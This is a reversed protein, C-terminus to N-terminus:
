GNKSQDFLITKEEKTLSDYGSKSIKDLIKDIVEQKHKKQANYEQDSMRQAPKGGKFAKLKPKPEVMKRIREIFAQSVSVINNKSHLKQVSWIGFIAGGIHAFHAVQDNDGLRLFDVLIFFLAIFIIRIRFIGFFYVTENPRYFAVAVFIAMISGSAGVVYNPIGQLAPFISYAAMQILGGLIGGLVYTHFLRSSNFYRLFMAGAFYLFLMNFLFHFLDFHAFISTFLGWPRLIFQQWKGHLTFIDQILHAAPNLGEVMFLKGTVTIVGIFLFVILNIGILRIHIGGYRWQHKIEDLFSRQM